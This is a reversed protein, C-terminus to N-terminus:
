EEEAKQRTPQGGRNEPSHVPTPRQRSNEAVLGPLQEFQLARSDPERALNAMAQATPGAAMAFGMPSVISKSHVFLSHRANLWGDGSVDRVWYATDPRVGDSEHQIMCGVDDFKLAEGDATVLAAAFREDSIIM